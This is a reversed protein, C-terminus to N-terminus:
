NPSVVPFSPPPISSASPPPLSPPTPLAPPVVTPLVPPTDVQPAPTEVSQSTRELSRGGLSAGVGLITNRIATATANDPAKASVAAAIVELDEKEDLIVTIKSGELILTAALANDADSANVDIILTQTEDADDIYNILVEDAMVATAYTALVYLAAGQVCSKLRVSGNLGM